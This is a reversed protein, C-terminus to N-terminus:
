RTVTIKKGEIKFHVLGTLEMIKLIESVHDKRSVAGSFELNNTPIEFRIDVDYWRSVQRMITEINTARFIFFGNKWALCQEIDANKVLTLKNEKDINAQQGPVLMVSSSGKSVQVAGAVLTTQVVSEDTYANVNFHTGLVKVETGNAIIRFPMKANKVVEFYVEGTIEVKRENGTFAGPYRISSAANLWVDTGDPLRLKYQGGRPTSMTNIGASAEGRNSPKHIVRGDATKIITFKENSAITGNRSSDLNIVTGDALMLLAKDGGPVVEFKAQTDNTSATITRENGGHISYYLAIAFAVVLVAAAVKIWAGVRRIPVVKKELINKLMTRSEAKDFPDNQPEFSSWADNMLRKAQEENEEQALLMRLEERETETAKGSVQLRFLHNLRANEL